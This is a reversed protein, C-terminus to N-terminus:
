LQSADTSLGMLVRGVLEYTPAAVMMHQIGVQADRLRRQLPHSLFVSSGGGLDHLVRVVDASTRAAHTAALRLEARTGVDIDGASQAREWGRAVSDYYYARAAHLRAAAEALGAQATAREALTRRSGQPRKGGALAVLDDMAGYANGILVAAVGLALLGFVPFAYLAGQAVPKDTMLAVSRARPVSLGHVEMEGSGTGCLGAVHWSDILRAERAPFLLMRHEPAGNAGIRPAGNEMVIAGGGLWGCNASGSAWQWKGDLVFGDGEVRARGMPAFVGGTITEADAYIDRAIAPDLYAANVGTTAGIMACWATSADGRGLTEIMEFIVAPAEELGGIDRPVAVRFLGARAMGRALDAPLRRATEIERARDKAQQAFTRAAALVHSM